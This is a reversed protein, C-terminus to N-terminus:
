RAAQLKALERLGERLSPPWGDDADRAKGLARGADKCIGPNRKSDRHYDSQEDVLEAELARVWTEINRKPLLISVPDGPGPRAMGGAAAAESLQDRRHQTSERDADTLVILWCWAGSHRQRITQLESPFHDRVWDDGAGRKSGPLPRPDIEGSKFGHAKAWWYAFRQQCKDEALIM